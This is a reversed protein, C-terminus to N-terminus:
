GWYSTKKKNAVIRNEALRKGLNNDNKNNKSGSNVSSGTGLNQKSDDEANEFSKPYKKKLENLASKLDTKGSQMKMKALEVIDDVYEPKVGLKMAEIKTDSTKAIDYVSKLVNLIESETSSIKEIPEKKGEGETKEKGEKETNVNSTNGNKFLNELAKILDGNIISVSSGLSNSSTSDKKTSDDKNEKDDKGEKDDSSTDSQDKKDKEKDDSTTGGTSTGGTDKEFMMKARLNFRKNFM